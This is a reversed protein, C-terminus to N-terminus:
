QAEVFQQLTKKVSEDTEEGLRKTLLAKARDTKQIDLARITAIRLQADDDALAKELAPLAADAFGVSLAWAAKRRILADGEKDSLRSELWGKVADDPFHGLASVARGRRSHPVDIDDAVAMLHEAVGDGLAKLETPTAVEDYANLLDMLATPHEAALGLAVFLTWFM